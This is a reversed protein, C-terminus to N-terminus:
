PNRTRAELAGSHRPMRNCGGVIRELYCQMAFKRDCPRTGIAMPATPMTRRSPRMLIIRPPEPLVECFSIRRRTTSCNTAMTMMMNVMQTIAFYDRELLTRRASSAIIQRPSAHHDEVLDVGAGAVVACGREAAALPALFIIQPDGGISRKVLGISGDAVEVLHYPGGQPPDEMYGRCGVVKLKDMVYLGESDRWVRRGWGWECGPSDAPRIILTERPLRQLAPITVLHPGELRSTITAPDVEDVALIKFQIHEKSFFAGYEKSFEARADHENEAFVFRYDRIIKPKSEFEMEIRYDKKV